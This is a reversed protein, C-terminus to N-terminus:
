EMPIPVGFLMPIPLGTEADRLIPKGQGDSGSGYWLRGGGPLDRNWSVTVLAGEIRTADVADDTLVETGAAVRFGAAKAGAKGGWTAIRLPLDYTLTLTRKGVAALATLKPRPTPPAAYIANRIAQTWREAFARMNEADRYHVGDTPFIDYTVAGPLAHPSEEWLEQQARRVGDNRDRLNLLNTIQGVLVPAGFLAHMDSVVARLHTRYQDYDGLVSLTNHHTIDNEGQYYLVAKVQLTGATANRVIKEMRQFMNGTARWQKVVTSGVATQIFGIPVRQEPILQNLVIPWPSAHKGANDSPDDGRSWTGARYKMGLCPNEENLTVHVSGRGDANSQGTVVFLDGIAVPQVSVVTDPQAVHRVELSDQGTAGQVTGSFRGENVDVRLAQWEGEGFRAEVQAADGAATLRGRVPIEGGAPSKRQCLTYPSPSEVVLPTATAAVACTTCVCMCVPFTNMM